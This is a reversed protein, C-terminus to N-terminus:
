KNAGVMVGYMTAPSDTKNRWAHRADQLVVVDGRTLHAEGGGPLELWVEGDFVISYDVTPTEHMDPNDVEFIEGAFIEGAGPTYEIAEAAAAAADFEASTFLSDPPISMALFRTEGPMPFFIDTALSRDIGDFPLRLDAPSDWMIAYGYGPTHVFDHSRPASEDSVVVSEGAPGTGIVVRRVNM